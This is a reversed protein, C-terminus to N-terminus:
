ILVCRRSKVYTVSRLPEGCDKTQVFVCAVYSRCSAWNSFSKCSSFSSSFKALGSTAFRGGEDLEGGAERLFFGRGFYGLAM